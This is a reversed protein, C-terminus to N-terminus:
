ISCRRTTPTRRCATARSCRSSRPAAASTARTSTARPSCMCRGCSRRWARTSSSARRRRCRAAACGRGHDAPRLREARVGRLAPVRRRARRAGHRRALCGDRLAPDMAGAPRRPQSPKRIRRYFERTFLSSVGSVWPNSPESIILDYRRNRTSFFSKADDILIAGRPDAFAASNRPMFGRSAEAMASEIEVTEVREIDLSQLLTHTTLGTGIGIVAASKAEPKLALPLAATLVMTIEDSGREGRADMNISGDSKGNTRLSTADSYKVLHVTATKGDKNFLITADRSTQLEGHRFVGATMKHPDLQVGIAVALFLAGCAAAAISM